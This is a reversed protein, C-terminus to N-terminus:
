PQPEKAQPQATPTPAQSKGLLDRLAPLLTEYKYQFGLAQLKSPLVKRGELVLTAMDGLATRLAFAPAPVVSPRGMVEGIAKAMEANTVPNPAVINFPGDAAENQLL